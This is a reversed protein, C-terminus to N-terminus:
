FWQILIYTDHNFQNRMYIQIRGTKPNKFYERKINIYIKAAGLRGNRPFKSPYELQERNEENRSQMFKHLMAIKSAGKRVFSGEKRLSQIACSTMKLKQHCKTNTM